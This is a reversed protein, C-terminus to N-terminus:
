GTQPRCAQTYAEMLSFLGYAAFFSNPWRPNGSGRGHGLRGTRRRLIARLRGRVWGDENKFTTKYSHKFYNFWGRLKPNLKAVLEEMSHGNTRRTLSRIGDRFKDISKKRPWKRGKQFHYGLFDFGEGNADSIRTKESHLQLGADATWEKVLELANEAEERTRCQIVLRTARPFRM